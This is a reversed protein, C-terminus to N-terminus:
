KILYSSKLLLFSFMKQIFATLFIQEFGKFIKVIEYSEKEFHSLNKQIKKGLLQKERSWTTAQSKKKKIAFDHLNVGFYNKKKFNV